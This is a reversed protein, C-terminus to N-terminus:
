GAPEALDDEHLAAMIRRRMIPSASHLGIALAFGPDDDMELILEEGEIRLHFGNDEGRIGVESMPWSGILSPGSRIELKEDILDVVVKLGPERGSEHPLRLQGTFEVM